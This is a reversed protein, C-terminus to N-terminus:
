MEESKPPLQITVKTGKGIESDIILEGGTMKEIRERVNRIGIHTRERDDPLSNYIFGPGDDKVSVEIHGATKKTSITVVGTGNESRRVGYSVANEVLPQLTLTPIRFDTFELDYEVKLEDGFRLQQLELYEKVYALEDHFPVPRDESLSDMNHRLFASFDTIAQEAKEPDQRYLNKITTLSNYLFHPQMQSLLLNIKLQANEQEKEHYQESQDLVTIIFMIAAAIVSAIAILHLGSFLMQALMGALPVIAFVAFAFRQKTSLKKRKVCLAVINLVAIMIPPVMQLAFLPGRSYINDENVSFLFGTFLNCILLGIYIVWLILSVRFIWSKEPKKEGSQRLLFATILFPLVSSLLAQSSLAIRSLMAWAPGSQDYAIERLIIFATYATLIAFISILNKKLDKKLYRIVLVQILNLLSLMFGAAAIILNVNHLEAQM